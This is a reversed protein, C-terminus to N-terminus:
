GAVFGLAGATLPGTRRSVWEVAARVLLAVFVILRWVGGFFARLLTGLWAVATGVPGLRAGLLVVVVLVTLVLIVLSAVIFVVRGAAGGGLLPAAVAGLFAWLPTVIAAVDKLRESRAAPAARRPSQPRRM